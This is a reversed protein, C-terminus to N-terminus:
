HLGSLACFSPCPIREIGQFLASQNDSAAFLSIRNEVLDCCFFFLSVFESWLTYDLTGSVDMLQMVELSRNFGIAAAVVLANVVIFFVFFERTVEYYVFLLFLLIALTVVNAIMTM